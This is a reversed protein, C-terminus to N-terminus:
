LEDGCKLCVNHDHDSDGVNISNEHQCVDINMEKVPHTAISGGGAGNPQSGGNNKTQLWRKVELFDFRKSAVGVNIFPMGEKELSLIKSRSVGLVKGLQQRTLLEM